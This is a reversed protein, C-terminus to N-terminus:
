QTDKIRSAPILSLLVIISLIIYLPEYGLKGILIGGLLPGILYAIPMADRFFSIMEADKEDVKKFFYTECMIEIFSAGTRTAFLIMGIFLPTLNHSFAFVLTAISMITIGTMLIEKEGLRKDALRGLPLQFLVFPLLMVTFIIGIVDWELGVTKTLYLPTYVVMWSYFFQLIFNVLSIRRLDTKAKIKKISVWFPERMYKKDAFENSSHYLMLSALSLVIAVIAYLESFGGFIFLRTALFPSMVWAINIITLYLGRAKGTDEQRSYHEIFIDMAPVMVVLTIQSAIFAIATILPHAGLSMLLASFAGLTLLGTTFNRNGVKALIKPLLSLILLSIISSATFFIGIWRSDFFSSLFSSNLYATVASQFSFLFSTAYIFRLM